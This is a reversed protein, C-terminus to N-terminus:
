DGLEKALLAELDDEALDDLASDTQNASAETVADAPAVKTLLFDRIAPVTPYDFVLTAPIKIGLVTQLRNKLDVASLSDIGLDFLGKTLSVAEGGSLGLIKAITERVMRQMRGGREDVPLRAWDIGPQPSEGATATEAPLMRSFIGPVPTGLAERFKALDLPLILPDNEAALLRGLWPGIEAPDIQGFGWGTLRERSAKGLRATMGVRAWPGWRLSVAPQSRLRLSEALGDLYGNAAAYNSQAASGFGSAISSYFGIFDLTTDGLAAVLNQASGAKAQWVAAFDEESLDPMLHDRLLGAAHVWGGLPALTRAADWLKMAMSEDRLDSGVWSVAVGQEKWAAIRESAADSPETRGNLVLHQAGQAVLWAAMELGLGGGGGSIVYSKEPSIEVAQAPVRKPSSKAIRRVKVGSDAIAFAAEERADALAPAVEAFRQWHDEDAFRLVTGAGEPREWRLARWLSEISTAMEPHAAADVAYFYPTSLDRQFVSQATRFASAPDPANWGTLDVYGIGPELSSPLAEIWKATIGKSELADIAPKAATKSSALIHWALQPPTGGAPVPEWTSQWLSDELPSGLARQVDEASIARLEFGEVEVCVNGSEDLLSVNGKLSPTGNAPPSWTAHAWQVEEEPLARLWRVQRIRFPVFQGEVAPMAAVLAQLSCDLMGPHWGPSVTATEPRKIRLLAQGRRNTHIADIWRFDPGLSIGMRAMTEFHDAVAVPSSLEGRLAKLDLRDSSLHDLRFWTGTAHSTTADSDPLFSILEVERRGSADAAGFTLQAERDKGDALMLPSAFTIEDVAFPQRAGIREGATLIQGLFQAGPAVMRGHVLHDAVWPMGALTAAQSFVHQDSRPLRVPHGLYPNQPNFGGGGSRGRTLDTGEIWHRERQWPYTPLAVRNGPFPEALANWDVTAGSEWLQAVAKLVSVVEGHARTASAIWTLSDENHDARSLGTLVPQPGVELFVQVGADIMSRVGDAYRVPRRLHDAWYKADAFIGTEIKGTVNSVLDIAPEAPHAHTMEEALGDRASNMLPSHFAHSVRLRTGLIEDAELRQAFNDVASSDGAVVTQRVGNFGAIVLDDGATALRVAVDEAALNIAMMAGDGPADQMLQGRKAVIRLADELEWIGAWVAGVYEGVSHGLAADPEIGWSRYLEGLAYSYTFLAPQTFRTQNILSADDGPAPWMVQRVPVELLTDLIDACEAVAGAFVPFREALDRGMGTRQAGQGSVLFGLRLGDPPRAATLALDRDSIERLAAIMEDRTSAVVAKRFGLQARGIRATHCVDGLSVSEDETLRDAYRGALAALASPSAASLPLLFPGTDDRVPEDAGAPAQELIVHVNSGGIGLSNVGARRPMGNTEWPRTQASVFFPSSEFDIQPNAREFHLTGPIQAHKVALATKILGAIGSAIQMHGINTKVSGVACFQKQDTHERFVRSLADIEIPDGLPTGTGHGEVYTITEAHIGARAIADRMVRYEGQASPATYGAKDGGDNNTASGRVVAYIRDGDKVADEVRKMLVVGSGNGFITGEAAADYARCHGDPSNLMGPSYQHGAYQPLKISVGGALAMGCEGDLLARAAQHVALLTSSCASQLNVVPGRLNLKYAVRTTLYDKDNTIMVNFGGMSDVTLMRGGMEEAQFAPDALLNNALYTNLGASAYLGVEYPTTLPDHGADEFAEWCTELFLRQQPDILSAEKASYRFFGADFEEVGDIVPAAKVFSPDRALSPDVGAAIADDATFFRISERENVLNDWFEEPGDAGPLRCGIGIIAVGASKGAATAAPRVEQHSESGDRAFHRALTNVTPCNFLEAITVTRGVLRALAQQVDVVLLSHGGLEFFTEDGGVEDLGLIDQWIATIERQLMRCDRGSRKARRRSGSRRAAPRLVVHDSFDGQEFATRLAPRKIKGIETKPVQSKELAVVYHAAVGIRQAIAARLAKAVVGADASEDPVFFIALEETEGANERVGCAATFSKTVGAVEEAVGEIEHCYFNAGNVIIVDKERGTIFLEGNELYGLDGTTFWGDQFVEANVDERRLYGSFVSPGRVQLRGSEGARLAEGADNVVRMEAGPITPGLSVFPQDDTTEALTFGLSWTIGSCTESMGFAPRLADSPLGRSEMVRLFKRATRAVIPEGANVLFRMSSLDWEGARIKEESDLVLSFAFNPAWSISAQHRDILDLWRTPQQLIYNTPVQVQSCGAFVPVLGLFVVAGVHDAAMWNLAVDDTGFGNMEVTGAAMAALNGETLPVGKSAGTSGSTFLMLAARDLTSPVVRGAPALRVSEFTFVPASVNLEALASRFATLHADNILVASGEVQDLAQFVKRRPASDQAYTPPMLVPVAVYGGLFCAWLGALFDRSSDAQLVIAVGPALNAAQLGGLITAAENWLEAYSQFRHGGVEDYHTVGRQDNRASLALRESWAFGELETTLDSPSNFLPM